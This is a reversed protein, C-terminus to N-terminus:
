LTVSGLNRLLCFRYKEVSSQGGPFRCRVDMCDIARGKWIISIPAYCVCLLLVNAVKGPQDSLCWVCPAVKRFCNVYDESETDVRTSDHRCKGNGAKILHRKWVKRGPTLPCFGYSQFALTSERIKLSLSKLVIFM